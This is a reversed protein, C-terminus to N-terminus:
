DSIKKAKQTKIYKVISRLLQMLSLYPFNAKRNEYGISFLLQWQQYLIHYKQFINFSPDYVNTSESSAGNLEIISIKKGARLEKQTQYRIDFRGFYFGSIKKAIQDIKKRLAETYLFTGDCFMTGQAHNGAITLQLTEDKKLVRKVNEKKQSLRKLFIKEQMAYRPHSLILEKINSKGDGLLIPFIKHTISFIHGNKEKPMRYYFIGAEHPGPHFVQALVDQVNQKLYKKAQDPNHILSVGIGRQGQDPKLIIPYSWGKSQFGANLHDWRQQLTYNKKQGRKGKRQNMKINKHPFAPVLLWDINWQSPIQGLISAKSEGIMGGGEMGPNAATVTQFGRYRLIWYIWGPLLPAYFLWPPWFEPRTLKQFHIIRKRRGEQTFLFVLSRFLIYALLVTTGLAVWYNGTLKEINEQLSPGVWMSLFILSPTWILGALLAFLIMTHPKGGLFGGGLYVPFRLGPVFRALVILKWGEKQFRQGTKKFNRSLKNQWPKYKLLGYAM